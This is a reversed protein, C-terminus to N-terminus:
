DNVARLKNLCPRNGVVETIIFQTKPYTLTALAFAQLVAQYDGTVSVTSEHKSRIHFRLDKLRAATHLIGHVGYAEADAADAAETHTDFIALAGIYGNHYGLGGPVRSLPGCRFGNSWRIIVWHDQSIEKLTNM